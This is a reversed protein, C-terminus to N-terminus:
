LQGWALEFEHPLGAKKIFAITQDQCALSLARTRFSKRERMVLSLFTLLVIARNMLETLRERAKTVIGLTREQCKASM